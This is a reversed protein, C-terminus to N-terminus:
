AFDRANPRAGVLHISTLPQARQHPTKLTPYLV